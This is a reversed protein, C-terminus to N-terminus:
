NLCIRDIKLLVSNFLFHSACVYGSTKFSIGLYRFFKKWHRQFGRSSSFLTLITTQKNASSLEELSGLVRYPLSIKLALFM